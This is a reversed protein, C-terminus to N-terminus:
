NKNLKPNKFLKDQNERQSILENFTTKREKHNDTIKIPEFAESIDTISTNTGIMAGVGTGSVYNCIVNNAPEVVNKVDQSQDQNKLSNFTENFIKKFKTKDQIQKNTFINDIKLQDRKEMENDVLVKTQDITIKTDKKKINILENEFEEIQENTPKLYEKCIGGDFKRKLNYFDNNLGVSNSIQETNGNVINILNESDEKIMNNLMGYIDTIFSLFLGSKIEDATVFCNKINIIDNRGSYKDPHYLLALNYYKATFKRKIKDLDNITQQSKSHLGFLEIFDINAFSNSEYKKNIEMLQKCLYNTEIVQDM